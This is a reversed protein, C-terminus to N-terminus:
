RMGNLCKQIRDLPFKRGHNESIYRRIERCDELGLKMAQSVFTRLTSDKTKRAAPGPNMLMLINKKLRTLSSPGITFGDWSLKISLCVKCTLGRSHLEQVRRHLAHNDKHTVRRGAESDGALPPITPKGSVRSGLQGKCLHDPLHEDYSETNAQSTGSLSFIPDDEDEPESHQSPTAAVSSSAGSTISCCDELLKSLPTASSTLADRSGDHMDPSPSRWLYEPALDSTIHGSPALHQVILEPRLMQQFTIHSDDQMVVEMSGETSMEPYATTFDESNSVYDPGYDSAYLSAPLSLPSHHNPSNAVFPLTTSYHPPVLLPPCRIPIACYVPSRVSDTSPISSSMDLGNTPPVNDEYIGYYDTSQTTSM